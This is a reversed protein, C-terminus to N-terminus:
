HGVRLNSSSRINGVCLQLMKPMQVAQKAESIQLFVHLVNGTGGVATSWTKQSILVDGGGISDLLQAALM